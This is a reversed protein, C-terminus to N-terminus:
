ECTGKPSLTCQRTIVSNHLGSSVCRSRVVIIIRFHFHIVRGYMDILSESWLALNLFIIMVQEDRMIGEERGGKRGGGFVWRGM